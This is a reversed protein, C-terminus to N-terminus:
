WSNGFSFTVGGYGNRFGNRRDHRGTDRVPHLNTARRIKGRRVVCEYRQRSYDYGDFLKARGSVIFRRKGVQEVHPTRRFGGDQYGYRHADVELQCSCEYIAQDILHRVERRTQGYQNFRQNRVRRNHPRDGRRNSRFNDARRESRDGRRTQRFEGAGGRLEATSASRDLRGREQATAPTILLASAALAVATAGTKM